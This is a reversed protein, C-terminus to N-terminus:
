PCNPNSGTRVLVGSICNGLSVVLDGASFIPDGNADLETSDSEAIEMVINGHKSNDNNLRKQFWTVAANSATGGPNDSGATALSARFKNKKKIKKFSADRQLLRYKRKFRATGTITDIGDEPNTEVCMKLKLIKPTGVSNLCIGTIPEGVTLRGKWIGKFDTSLDRDVRDEPLPISAQSMNMCCLMLAFAAITRLLKSM